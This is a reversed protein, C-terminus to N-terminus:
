WRWLSLEGVANGVECAEEGEWWWWWWRRFLESMVLVGGECREREVLLTEGVM